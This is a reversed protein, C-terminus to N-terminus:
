KVVIKLENGCKPCKDEGILVKTKYGEREILTARCSPCHTNNDVGMVNGIYVYELHKEAIERCKLIRDVPTAPATFKYMPYYRSLHLPIKKDVSAIWRALRDVEEDSDNYGNVLLTTIEIHCASSAVEITSLVNDLDGKCSDKYFENTFGKLDINMADVYPLLEELPMKNVYGNTVLVVDVDREKCKKATDYVYEYWMLPENYTFALGINGENKMELATNIMEESDMYRTAPVHKAISYNQCFGCTFNCGFSGASLIQTGPKYHYLPKKEIPDIGLSSVEGYNITKFFNDEVKRVRCVGYMGEKLHCNHPCVQCVFVGEDEKVYFAVERAM